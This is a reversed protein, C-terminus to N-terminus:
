RGVGLRDGLGGLLSNVLWLLATGALGWSIAKTALYERHDVYNDAVTKMVVELRAMTVQVATMTKQLDSVKEALVRFDEASPPEGM